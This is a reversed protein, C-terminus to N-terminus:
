ISPQAEESSEIDEAELKANIDKILDRSLKAVQTRVTSSLLAGAATFFIVRSLKSGVLVGVGFGLAGTAVPLLYPREHFAMEARDRLEEIIDRAHEVRERITGEATEVEKELAKTAPKSERAMNKAHTPEM